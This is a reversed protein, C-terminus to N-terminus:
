LLLMTVGFELEFLFHSFFCFNLTTIDFYNEVKKLKTPLLSRGTAATLQSGKRKAM